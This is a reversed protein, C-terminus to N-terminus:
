GQDRLRDQLHDRLYPAVASLSGPLWESLQVRDFGLDALSRLQEAVAEPEGVMGGYLGEGLMAAMAGAGEGCGVFALLSVHVDPNAARVTRVMAEVEHSTVSGLAAFDLAGDRTTRGMKLEVRDVLPAITRMTWPSGVSAVLPPSTPPTPGLAPTDIRYYEGEFACPRGQLLERTILLAEYYMRARTRGDPYPRGTRDMEDRAWGAGLGAEYRGGSVMQMALSAQAFEVPHRFLNNAFAPQLTVRSTAAAMTALTVWLHPFPTTGRGTIWLHDSCGLGDFGESERLRAWGAVDDVTSTLNAFWQV